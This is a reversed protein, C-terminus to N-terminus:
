SKLYIHNLILSKNHKLCSFRSFLLFQTDTAGSNQKIHVKTPRPSKLFTKKKNNSHRLKCIHSMANLYSLCYARPLFGFQKRKMNQSMTKRNIQLCLQKKEGVPM